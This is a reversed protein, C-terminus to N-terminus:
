KLHKRFRVQQVVQGRGLTNKFDGPPEYLKSFLVAFGCLASVQVQQVGARAPPALSHLHS